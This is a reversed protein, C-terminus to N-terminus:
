IPTQPGSVEFFAKDLAERATLEALFRQFGVWHAGVRAAPANLYAYGIRLVHRIVGALLISSNPARLATRVTPGDPRMALVVRSGTAASEGGSSRKRRWAILSFPSIKRIAIDPHVIIYFLLKRLPILGFIIKIRESNGSTVGLYSEGKRIILNNEPLCQLFAAIPAATAPELQRTLHGLNRSGASSTYALDSWQQAPRALAATALM